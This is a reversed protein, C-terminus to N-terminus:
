KREPNGYIEIYPIKGEQWFYRIKEVVLFAFMKWAAM